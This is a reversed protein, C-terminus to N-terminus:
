VSIFETNLQERETLNYYLYFIPSIEGKRNGLNNSQPTQIPIVCEHRLAINTADYSCRHLGRIWSFIILKFYKISQQCYCRIRTYLSYPVIYFPVSTWSNKKRFISHRSTNCYLHHCKLLLWRFWMVLLSPNFMEEFTVPMRFVMQAPTM